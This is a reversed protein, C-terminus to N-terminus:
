EPNEPASYERHIVPQYSSTGWRIEPADEFRVQYRYGNGLAWWAFSDDPNQRIEDEYSKVSADLEM